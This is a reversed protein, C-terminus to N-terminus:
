VIADGRKRALRALKAAGDEAADRATILVGPRGSELFAKVQDFGVVTAGAKRALGLASLARMRLLGDVRDALDTAAAQQEFARSFAGKAAAKEILARDAGVWAGRGPLNEALDPVVAGDPDLVFRILGEPATRAGSVICRRTRADEDKHRPNNLM